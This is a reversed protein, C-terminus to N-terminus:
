EKQVASRKPIRGHVRGDKEAAAEPKKALMRQIILDMEPTVNANFLSAAPPPEGLHRLLLDKPTSGKFPTEGTLLEFLTVGWTTSTPGRHSPSASFRSPPWTPAREGAVTLQKRHLM